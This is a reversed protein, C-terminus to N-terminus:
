AKHFSQSAGAATRDIVEQAEEDSLTNYHAIATMARDIKSIPLTPYDLPKDEEDM